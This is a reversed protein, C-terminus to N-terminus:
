TVHATVGHATVGDEPQPASKAAYNRHIISFVVPVFFLTSVTAFLLGGIVARGLPANQEGGEGLGLAMPLMGIMMALATMLVPRLRVFGAELAAQTADGLQVLRERAFSIVLVSNATAVGMCMIAGTLAPVSLTTDTAFLMWVIGALAAPLATIIVFPDSWSQFNIVILFYILVIAGLLGFLLETYAAHMTATQGVLAIISGKPKSADNRAIIERIDSSVAGLDRGQTTAYIEVMPSIDYQSFVANSYAPRIDAIGGLVTTPAGPANIPLNELAALTDIQYQPTQLAIPYTVGNKENLWYTPAVQTSSALNVVLSDTVDAETVGTFQARTRDVNVDLTPLRASQQIRADAVGRVHRIQALLKSAYAYDAGLDNGRIQLDIPAPAGFNLIQSVIDAPLFSFSTGPFRRPLQERLKNVYEATPAHGATLSIQIDGDSEGITGTNNYITNIASLYTGINDVITATEAAPIVERIASEVQAFRAATEEIRMGVPARVHLLIQGGDVQPFFNRGLFPTLLFSAAVFGLFGGVFIRRHAIAFALLDRYGTRLRLFQAEFGHQLRVLPNRAPGPERAVESSAAPAGHKRLLYKALTPVLTRSLLFSFVMAFMVSEAMPVFLFRAVGSLFFMPIFVICICLLSVFAPIVIQSAGDLIATEVDKGQELHYNISEITVTAEDVLIGVALALGGLTMINLTEGIASLTAIAGLVALPISTTVILTSRASGLFLLIMLSTLAAAIVGERIVGSISARVFMSQDAIPKIELADPLSPKILDLMKKIGSVISLTSTAGNKFVSLLVSRNGDVHVVNTQVAGGQHVHAVDHMYVMAGGVSKIPLDELDSLKSPANNLNINYEYNGIKESGAPTLLNQAALANAVDHGTLGYARLAAPDLDYMVQPQRGGFPWPIGAGQVTVLRVRVFNMGLDALNQETLGKGSLALQIIPVTSASYNLILPPTTGEPMQKLISQAVATVQANATAINATPHFYIKVVGFTTYSNAEIHEIDNVTTTLAREFPSIIRGAMQDPPLGQYQFAVGIIPIDISPFIDVPMRLAALTGILLILLAAVIFTYPRKLAIRVIALM